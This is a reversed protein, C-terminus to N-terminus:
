VCDLVLYHKDEGAHNLTIEDDIGLGLLAKGLPASATVFFAYL